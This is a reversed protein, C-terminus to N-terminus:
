NLGYIHNNTVSKGEPGGSNENNVSFTSRSLALTKCANMRPLTIHMPLHVAQKFPRSRLCIVTRIRRSHAVVIMKINHPQRGKCVCCFRLAYCVLTTLDSESKSVFSTLLFFFLCLFTSQKRIGEWTM